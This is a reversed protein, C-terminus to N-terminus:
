ADVVRLSAASPGDAIHANYDAKIEILLTLLSALDTADSAAITNTADANYHLATSAIHTAWDSKLENALTIATALTTAAPAAVTAVDAIKHALTDARHRASLARLENVSVLATALTTPTAASAIYESVDLHFKAGAGIQLKLANFASAFASPSLPVKRLVTAM